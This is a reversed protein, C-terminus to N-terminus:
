RILDVSLMALVTPLYLLSVRLLSRAAAETRVRSFAVSSALMMGGLILAAVAYTPGAIGFWTPLLSAPILLLSYVIATTATRWGRRDVTSVMRVGAAAYDDRCIWAIAMFHPFQWLFVILFLALAGGDFGRGMATWGMVAPLAGPIAGVFTNWTTHLKLPTYVWVYLQWSLLGLLATTWNVFVGLWVLGLFLSVGGFWIAERPSIRGTPLPRNATRHMRADIRRELLQNFASASGAVLATGLMAHLLLWGPAQGQMAVYAGVAVTVLELIAIRPKTLAIFDLARTGFSVRGAPCVLVDASM